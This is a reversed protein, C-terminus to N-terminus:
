AEGTVRNRMSTFIDKVVYPIEYFVAFPVLFILIPPFADILRSLVPGAEFMGFVTVTTEPASEDTKEEEEQAATEASCSRPVCVLFRFLRRRIRCPVSSGFYNEQSNVHNNEGQKYIIQPKFRM